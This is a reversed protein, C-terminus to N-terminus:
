SEHGGSAAALAEAPDVAGDYLARGMIMGAIPPGPARLAARIDEVGRFGGSAIVPITVAAALASTLELNIGAKIGDRDIDTVVLAAAGADEHRRALDLASVDTAHTWGEVAVRGSRTDIGIVIQGPFAKAAARVFGPDRVAATGIVVRTVGRSLWYEVSAMDRVGGGVQIGAFGTTGTAALIAEIAAANRRLGAMAGDLDVVHLWRYGVDRFARAQAAPDANFRTASDMRGQILRVCAGDKLDIAPYLIM